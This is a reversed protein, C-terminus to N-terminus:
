LVTRSCLNQPGRLDGHRCCIVEPQMRENAGRWEPTGARPDRLLHWDARFGGTQWIGSDEM